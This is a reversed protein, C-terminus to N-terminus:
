WVERPILTDYSSLCHLVASFLGVPLRFGAVSHRSEVSAFPKELGNRLRVTDGSQKVLFCYM